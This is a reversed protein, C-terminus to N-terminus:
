RISFLLFPVYKLGFGLYFYINGALIVLPKLKNPVIYYIISLFVLFAMFYVSLISM